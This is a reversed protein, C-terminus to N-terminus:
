KGTARKIQPEIYDAWSKRQTEFSRARVINRLAHEYLPETGDISELSLLREQLDPALLTLDLIQTMRSPSMRFQRAISSRDATLDNRIANEIAHAIALTVAVKAPKRVVPSAERLLRIAGARGRDRHMPLRVIVALPNDDVQETTTEPALEAAGQLARQWRVSAEPAFAIVIASDDVRVTRVLGRLLQGKRDDTLRDWAGDFGALQEGICTVETELTDLTAIQKQVNVHEARALALKAGAADISPGLADRQAGSAEALRLLDAADNSLKIIRDPFEAAQERLKAGHTSRLGDITARLKGAVDGAKGIDRLHGAILGELAEAPLQGAACANRGKKERGVCRYYRYAKGHRQTSAPTMAHDCRSGDSTNCGCTLVGRLFYSADRKHESAELTNTELIAQVQDWAERAIIPDHQGPYQKGRHPVLGAVFPSSLVRLVVNKTWAQPVHSANRNRRLKLPRSRENLTRAVAGASKLEAYLDFMERVIPRESENVVLCKKISDYGYPACGGTWKGKKRAGAIKDRTREVIMEREFEAFSALVHLTLRGVPTSTDFAQTVSLFGVKHTDLFDMVGLFDRLSRSLRDFKYVIVRDIKGAAVDDMLRLVDERALNKGSRGDDVYEGALIANPLNRVAAMCTDRQSDISTFPEGNDSDDRDSESVRLYIACRLQTTRAQVNKRPTM